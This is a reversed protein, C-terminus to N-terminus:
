QRRSSRTSRQPRRRQDQYLRQDEPKDYPLSGLPHKADFQALLEQCGNFDEHDRPRLPSEEDSNKYSVRYKYREHLYRRSSVGDVEWETDPDVYRPDLREDLSMNDYTWPRYKWHHRVHEMSFENTKGKTFDTGLEVRLRGKGLDVQLIRYPGFAERSELKSKGRQAHPGFANKHLVVWDGVSYKPLKSQGESLAKQRKERDQRRRDAHRQRDTDRRQLYNELASEEDEEVIPGSLLDLPSTPRYGFLISTASLGTDRNEKNNVISLARPLHEYWNKGKGAKANM